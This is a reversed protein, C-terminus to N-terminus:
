WQSEALSCVTRLRTGACRFALVAILLIVAQGPSVACPLFGKVMTDPDWEDATCTGDKGVM